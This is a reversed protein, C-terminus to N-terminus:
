CNLPFSMWGASLVAAPARRGQGLKDPAIPISWRPAGLQLSVHFGEKLGAVCSRANYFSCPKRCVDSPSEAALCSPALAQLFRLIVPGNINSFVELIVWDLGLGSGGRESVVDRMAEDGCEKFVEPSPSEVVERPLTHWDRLRELIVCHYWALETTSFLAGAFSIFSLFAFAKLMVLVELM